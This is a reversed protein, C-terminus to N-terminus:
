ADDARVAALAAGVALHHEPDARSQVSLQIVPIDAAPYMLALPVWAGHDLGRRGDVHVTLGADALHGAVREALRLNGPAPYRMDYLRPPFGYFDHITDPFPVGTVRPEASEWHASVCVIASPRPMSEGVTRLFDRAPCDDTLLTPAGHSVFLTPMM